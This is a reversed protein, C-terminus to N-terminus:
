GMSAGKDETEDPFVAYDARFGGRGDGWLVVPRKGPTVDTSIVDVNGDRDLDVLSTQYAYIM